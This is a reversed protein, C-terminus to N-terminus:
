PDGLVGDIDVEHVMRLQDVMRDVADRHHRHCEHDVPEGAENRRVSRIQVEDFEDIETHQASQDRRLVEAAAAEVHNGCHDFRLHVVVTHQQAQPEGVGRRTAQVVPTGRLHRRRQRRGSGALMRSDGVTLLPRRLDVAVVHQEM